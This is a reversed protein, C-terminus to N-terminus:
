LSALLLEKTPFLNNYDDLENEDEFWVAEEIEPIHILYDESPCCIDDSYKCLSVGIVSGNMVMNDYIFWVTQEFDFMTDHEITM